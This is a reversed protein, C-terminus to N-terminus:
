NRINIITQTLTSSTEIAKANAQFNRQATILEVLEETLDVNARELAGAQISGFGDGGAEGLTPVGSNTTELYNADGIQKLGNANAFNTLIIKGLAVQQGNTYNARVVGSSDIDLGDLKGSPFGDQSLSLVSFPQSFQTSNTGYDVNLVIPDSGNEPDFPTYAAGEKPSILRGSTDFTLEGKDLYVPVWNPSGDIPVITEVGEGDVFIPNGDQDRAQRLITIDPVDGRQQDTVALGFNPHGNVNIFSDRSATGSTFTFRQSDIDFRVKVGSVKRGDETEILNVRKEVEAAFTDGTYAGPPLTIKGDVGDVTVSIVNDQFTVPFTGSTDVGTRSGTTVAPIGVLGSGKAKIIEDSVAESFGLMAGARLNAIGATPPALGSRSVVEDETVVDGDPFGVISFDGLGTLVSARGAETTVAPVQIPNGDGDVAGSPDDVTAQAGITRVVTGAEIRQLLETETLGTVDLANGESDAYTAGYYTIGRYTPRIDIESAQGTSGSRFVFRREDRLYEVEVGARQQDPDIRFDGNPVLPDSLYAGLTASAGVSISESTAGFGLVSNEVPNSGDWGTVRLQGIASDDSSTAPKFQIARERINYTVSLKGRLDALAPTNELQYNIEDVIDKPLWREANPTRSSDTDLTVVYENTTEGDASVVTIQFNRDSASSFDFFREDGLQDNIALSIANALGSGNLTVSEDSDLPLSVNVYNSGDVSIRFLDQGSLVDTPDLATNDASTGVITAELLDTSGFDFGNQMFGGSFSGASSPVQESQEDLSYKPHPANPNFTPDVAAPDSSLQGFENIYLIENKDNKAKLLAPEIERDGIFIRTQWKNTPDNVTANQTKYYYITAISANGLSDFVTISTSKNYTEPDNRDFEYNAQGSTFIEREPIIEADAPLNVGLLLQSSAKPEGSTEPLQLSRAADISTSTVSGDENVPFVQLFQGVSDVVYRDNNVSFGGNRTYVTQNSTLNPKLAFFGQGSVALDLSNASNVINGQTFVQSIEKLNVGQGVVSSNKQLPSTAFIDGFQARSKKFGITGVNAINNSSVGLQASAANLGTLATYFSM